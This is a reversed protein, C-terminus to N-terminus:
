VLLRLAESPWRCVDSHEEGTCQQGRDLRVRAGRNTLQRLWCLSDDGPTKVMGIVLNTALVMTATTLTSILYRVVWSEVRVTADIRGASTSRCRRIACFM